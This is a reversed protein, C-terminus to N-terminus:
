TLIKLEQEDSNNLIESINDPINGNVYNIKRKAM